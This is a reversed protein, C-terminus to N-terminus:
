EEELIIFRMYWQIWELKPHTLGVTSDPKQDGFGRVTFTKVHCKMLIKAKCNVNDLLSGGRWPFDLSATFHM